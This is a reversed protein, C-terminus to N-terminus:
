HQKHRQPENRMYLGLVGIIVSVAIVILAVIWPPFGQTQCNGYDAIFKKEDACGRVTFPHKYMGSICQYKEENNQCWGCGTVIACAQCNTYRFCDDNLALQWLENNQKGEFVNDGGFILMSGPISTTAAHARADPWTANKASPEIRSWKMATLDYRWLDDFEQKGDTGGFLLVSYPRSTVDLITSHGNRPAPATDGLPDASWLRRVTDLRWVVMTSLTSGCRGGVMFISTDDINVFSAGHRSEPPGASGAALQLPHWTNSAQEYYFVSSSCSGDGNTGGFMYFRFSNNQRTLTCSQQTPIPSLGQSQLALDASTLTTINLDGTMSVVALQRPPVDSYLYLNSSSAGDTSLWQSYCRGAFPFLLPVQIWSSTNLFYQFVNYTVSGPPYEGGVVTIISQDTSNVGFAANSLPDPLASSNAAVPLLTFTYALIPPDSSKSEASDVGCLLTLLLGIFILNRM